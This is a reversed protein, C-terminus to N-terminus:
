GWVFGATFYYFSMKCEAIACAVVFYMCWRRFLAIRTILRLRSMLSHAVKAKSPWCSKEVTDWLRTYALYVGSAVTKGSTIKM